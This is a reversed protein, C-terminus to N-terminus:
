VQKSLKDKSEISIIAVILWLSIGFILDYTIIHKATVETPPLILISATLSAHMLEENVQTKGLFGDIGTVILIGGWSVTFAIIFYILVPYRKTFNRM